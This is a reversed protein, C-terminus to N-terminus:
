SRGMKKKLNKVSRLDVGFEQALEMNTSSQEEQLFDHFDVGFLQNVPNGTVEGKASYRMMKM